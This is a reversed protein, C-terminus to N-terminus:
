RHCTCCTFTHDRGRRRREAAELLQQRKPEATSDAPPQQDFKGEEVAECNAAHDPLGAATLSVDLVAGDPRM